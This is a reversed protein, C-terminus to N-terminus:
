DTELVYASVWAAPLVFQCTYVIKDRQLQMQKEIAAVIPHGNVKRTQKSGFHSLWQGKSKTENHSPIVSAKRNQQLIPHSLWQGKLATELQPPIVM